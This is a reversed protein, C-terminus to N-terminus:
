RRIRFAHFDFRREHFGLSGVDGQALAVTTRRGDGFAFKGLIIDSEDFGDRCGRFLGGSEPGAAPRMM